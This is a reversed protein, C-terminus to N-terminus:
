QRCGNPNPTGRLRFVTIKGSRSLERAAPDTRTWGAEPSAKRDYAPGFILGEPSYPILPPTTVVYDYHGAALASRWARCGRVREFAGHPGIHAVQEVRNSLTNGYLPYTQISGVVAIRADSVNRAFALPDSAYRERLYHRQVAYGGAVGLVLVGALGAALLSRPVRRDVRAIVAAALAGFVLALAIRRTDGTGIGSDFLTVILLTLLAAYFWARRAVRVGPPVVPVLALAILLGPTLYRLTFQFFYPIGEPGDAGRPTFLYVAVSAAAAVGLVRQLPRGAVISAVTGLAVLALMAWWLEGFATNLGPLYFDHWISGDTLYHWVTYTQPLPPSPVSVPGLDLGVAPFPNGVRFLNRLYWFSGALLLPGTWWAAIRMRRERPAVLIVGVTLAAVPAIATVKAGLALGAAVAALAVAPERWGANLLLAAAALVLAGAVIDTGATGSQSTVLAPAALLPCTALLSAPGLGYPRGVCWAALLALGLWGLNILPTLVDSHMLVMGVTHLLESGYPLFPVIPDSYVFEMRTISGSEFFRAAVPGHYSLTDSSFIGHELATVVKVGWQAFVLVAAVAAVWVGLRDPAPAPPAPEAAAGARGEGRRGLWWAAGGLLLSGAVLPARELIGLTGLLHAIGWLLTLFLVAEALRAPAGAWGPVIRERLAFAGAGLPALVLLALVVGALYDAATM